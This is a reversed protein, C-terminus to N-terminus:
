RYDVNEPKRNRPSWDGPEDAGLNERELASFDSHRNRSHDVPRERAQYHAVRKRKHLRVPIRGDKIHESAETHQRNNKDRHEHGLSLSDGELLHLEIELIADWQAPKAFAGVQVGHRHRLLTACGLLLRPSM